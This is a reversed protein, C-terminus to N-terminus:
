VGVFQEWKKLDVEVAARYAKHLEDAADSKGSGDCEGCDHEDGCHCTCQGKGDCDSCKLETERVDEPQMELWQEFTIFRPTNAM